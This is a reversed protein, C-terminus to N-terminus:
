EEHGVKDDEGDGDGEEVIVEGHSPHDEVAYRVGDEENVNDDVESCTLLKLLLCVEAIGGLRFVFNLLVIQPIRRYLPTYLCVPFHVGPACTNPDKCKM